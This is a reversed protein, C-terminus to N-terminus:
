IVTVLEDTLLRGCLMTATYNSASTFSSTEPSVDVVVILGVTLYYVAHHQHLRVHQYGGVEVGEEMLLGVTIYYVVQHQHPKRASLLGMEGHMVMKRHVVMEGHVVLGHTLPLRHAAQPTTVSLTSRCSLQLGSEEKQRGHISQGVVDCREVVSM